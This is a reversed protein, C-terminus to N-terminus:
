WSIKKLEQVKLRGINKHKLFKGTFLVYKFQRQKTKQALKTLKIWKLKKIINVQM